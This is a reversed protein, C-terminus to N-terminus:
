WVQLSKGSKPPPGNTRLRDNISGVRSIWYSSPARCPSVHVLLCEYLEEHILILYLSQLAFYSLSAISLYIEQCAIVRYPADTRM